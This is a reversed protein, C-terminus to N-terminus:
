SRASWVRTMPVFRVPIVSKSTTTGDDKKHLVVLEQYNTGVPIVLHGGPALQFILADPVHDPAAAVLIGHFPAHEAWGQYGDGIRTTVNDIGLRHLTSAAQRRLAEVIEISYVHAVLKALIATQYGSGTGIELVRHNPETDLLETMLAVIFPQSITQGHGISLPRDAYAANRMPEPVFEHRAVCRVADLVRRSIPRVSHTRASREALKEIDHVMRERALAWDKTKGAM